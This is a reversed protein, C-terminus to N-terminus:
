VAATADPVYPQGDFNAINSFRGTCTAQTKDCGASVTFTDGPAAPLLTPRELTLTGTSAATYARVAYSLGSNLGSTFTLIGLAYYGDSQGLASAAIITVSTSGAGVAGTATFAAKSLTCGADYLTHLCGPQYVNRPLQTDFFELYSRLEIQASARGCQQVTALRGSFRNTTGMSADGFTASTLDDVEVHAGDFVGMAIAQLLTLGGITTTSGDDAVTITMSSVETGVANTITDWKLKPGASSFVNGSVTIDRDADTWRFVQGSVLTFTYLFARIYQRNEPIFAKLATSAAHM